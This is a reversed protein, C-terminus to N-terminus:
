GRPAIRAARAIRVPLRRVGDLFGRWTLGAFGTPRILLVAVIIALAIMPKYAVDVGYGRNLLSIGFNEAAAVIYGGAVTGYFSTLGALISAAFIWLLARWGTEPHIPNYVSWFCGALGALGGALIWTLRRIASTNIGSVRALDLNSAMARMGKGVRTRTFLLHLAVVIGGVTPVVTLHLDTLAGDGLFAVVSASINAKASLLNALDAYITVLYRIVIGAGISAVLLHLPTAGRRAIPKFVLEDVALAAGAGALFSLVLAEALGGGVLNVVVVTAYAGITVNEAHAFNPIKTVKYTLTLGLAMMTYLSGLLLADLAPRALVDLM